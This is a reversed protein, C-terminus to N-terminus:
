HVGFKLWVCHRPSNINACSIHNRAWHDVANCIDEVLKKPKDKNEDKRKANRSCCAYVWSKLKM